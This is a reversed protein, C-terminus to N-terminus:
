LLHAGTMPSPTAPRSNSASGHSLLSINGRFAVSESDAYGLVREIESSRLGKIRVIEASSYNVVARGIEEGKSAMNGSHMSADKDVAVLRVCEQQAFQGSVSVIGSPLLSSRAPPHLASAAGRDIYVTGLPSLAHLIWFARTRIPNPSPTFLTHLPPGAAASVPAAPPTASRATADNDHVGNSRSASPTRTPQDAAPPHLFRIIESVNGPKSSKTIITSTGASTALRAATIKTAMGGTGLASGGSSTDVELDDISDVVLVPKADAFNRPNKDYLCDVDTMLFLYDAHVMAATIASLTDNDGFKIESVAVTDNENVIPIVGLSLVETFTNTANIYQSRDAIDNRTLLIQAVPQNMHAFLDDWISMLKCQGIAALAQVQALHKPRKAMKMRQLGVGVAGSSVIVVRHGDRKLKIATEVILSLVSLIPEHTLEDVISSTGLVPTLRKSRVRVPFRPM